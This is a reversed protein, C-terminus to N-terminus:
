NKPRRIEKNKLYFDYDEILERINNSIKEEGIIKMLDSKSPYDNSDYDRIKNLKNKIEDDLNEKGVERILRSLHDWTQYRYFDELVEDVEADKNLLSKDIYKLEKILENKKYSTMSGARGFHTLNTVLSIILPKVIKKLNEVTAYVEEVTEKMEAEFGAGKFRQIKDLNLFAAAVAGSVVALGMETPKGIYGFYFGPAIIFFLSIVNRLEM